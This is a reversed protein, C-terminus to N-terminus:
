PARLHAIEVRRGQVKVVNPGSRATVWACIGLQYALVIAALWRRPLSSNGTELCLIKSELKSNGAPLFHGLGALRDQTL